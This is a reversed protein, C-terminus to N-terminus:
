LPQAEALIQPKIFWHLNDAPVVDIKKNIDKHLLDELGHAFDFWERYTGNDGLSILFDIDSDETDEERVVSGFVRVDKIGYAKALALIEDRKEKRLYELTTTM